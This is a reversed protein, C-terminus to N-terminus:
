RYDVSLRLMRGRHPMAAHVTLSHFLPVDGMADDTTRWPAHDMRFDVALGGAGEAAFCPLLGRRHSGQHVALGGQVIPDPSSRVLQAIDTM